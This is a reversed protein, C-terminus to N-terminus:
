RNWCLFFIERGFIFNFFQWMDLECEGRGVQTGLPFWMEVCSFIIYPARWPIHIWVLYAHRINNASEINTSIIHDKTEIPNKRPDRRLWLCFIIPAIYSMSNYEPIKASFMNSFNTIIRRVDELCPSFFLM